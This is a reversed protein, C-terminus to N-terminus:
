TYQVVVQLVVGDYELDAGNNVTHRKFVAQPQSTLVVNLVDNELIERSHDRPPRPKRVGILSLEGFLSCFICLHSPTVFRLIFSKRGQRTSHCRAGTTLM